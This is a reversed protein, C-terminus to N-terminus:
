NVLSEIESQIFDSFKKLGKEQVLVEVPPRCGTKKNSTILKERIDIRKRKAEKEFFLCKKKINVLENTEIPGTKDLYWLGELLHIASHKQVDYDDPTKRVYSFPPIFGNQITVGTDIYSNHGIVAPGIITVNPGLFVKKQIVIPHRDQGLASILKTGSQISCLEGIRSYDIVVQPHIITENSIIADRVTCGTSIVVGNKIRSNTITSANAYCNEGFSSEEITSNIVVAEQGIVAQFIRSDLIRCREKISTKKLFSTSIFCQRHIEQTGQFVTPPIIITDEGIFILPFDGPPIKNEVGDGFLLYYLLDDREAHLFDLLPFLNKFNM